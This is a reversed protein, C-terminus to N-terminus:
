HVFCMLVRRISIVLERVDGFLVVEESTTEPDKLLDQWFAEFTLCFDWLWAQQTADPQWDMPLRDYRVEDLISAAGIVQDNLQGLNAQYIDSAQNLIFTLQRTTFYGM